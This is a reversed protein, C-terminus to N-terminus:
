QREERQGGNQKGNEKIMKQENETGGLVALSWSLICYSTLNIRVSKIDFLQLTM